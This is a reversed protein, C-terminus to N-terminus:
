EVTVAGKLKKKRYDKADANNLQVHTHNGGVGEPTYFALQVDTLDKEIDRVHSIETIGAEVRDGASVLPEDTHILVCDLDKRGDPQIHIEIDPVTDYLKYKKVLVVTGTIPARVITGPLAGVDISTDMATADSSRWLHLADADLWEGQEQSTNVRIQRQKQVKEYDAEPLETSLVYAYDYSAQHFLVGTLDSPQIPSRLDVGQANAILPTQHQRVWEAREEAVEQDTLVTDGVESFSHGSQGQAGTAGKSGADLGGGGQTDQQQSVGIVNLIPDFLTPRVAWMAGIAAVMLVTVVVAAIEARRMNM